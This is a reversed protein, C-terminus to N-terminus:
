RVFNAALSEAKEQSYGKSIYQAVVSTIQDERSDELSYSISLLGRNNIATLEAEEEASLTRTVLQGLSVDFETIEM